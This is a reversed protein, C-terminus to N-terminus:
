LTLGLPTNRIIVSCRRVGVDLAENLGYVAAETEKNLGNGLVEVAMRPASPVAAGEPCSWISLSLQESSSHSTCPCNGFRQHIDLALTEAVSSCVVSLSCITVFPASLKCIKAMRVHRIVRKIVARQAPSSSYVNLLTTTHIPRRSSEALLTFWSPKVKGDQTSQPINECAHIAHYNRFSFHHHM